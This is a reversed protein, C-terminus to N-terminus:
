IRPLGHRKIHEILERNGPLAPLMKRTLQAAEQFYGAAKDADRGSSSFREPKYGM